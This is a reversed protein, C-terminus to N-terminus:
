ETFSCENLTIYAFFYQHVVNQERSQNVSRCCANDSTGGSRLEVISFQEYGHVMLNVYHQKVNIVAKQM